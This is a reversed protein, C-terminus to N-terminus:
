AKETESTLLIYASGIAVIISGVFIIAYYSTNDKENKFVDKTYETSASSSKTETANFEIKKGNEDFIEGTKVVTYTGNGLSRVTEGNYEMETGEPEYAPNTVGKEYTPPNDSTTPSKEARVPLVMFCMLAMAMVLLKRM